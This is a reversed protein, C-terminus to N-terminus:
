NVKRIEYLQNKSIFISNSSNYIEEFKKSMNFQDVMSLDILILSGKNSIIRKHQKILGETEYSPDIYFWANNTSGLNNLNSFIYIWGESGITYYKNVNSVKLYQVIQNKDEINFNIKNTNLYNITKIGPGLTLFLLYIYHLALFYKLKKLFEVKNLYITLFLFYSFTIILLHSSTESKTSIWFITPILILSLCDIYFKKNKLLHSTNTFIIILFFPFLLLSLHIFSERRYFYKLFLNQDNNYLKDIYQSIYRFNFDFNHLYYQYFSYNNLEMVFIFFISFTILSIILFFFKEKNSLLIFINLYIFIYIISDIRTLIACSFFLISIILYLNIKNKKTSAFYLFIFSLSVFFTQFLAISIHSSSNYLLCILISLLLVIEFRNKNFLLIIFFNTMLFLFCIISLTFYSQFIGWGYISGLSSILNIFLPGKHTFFDTYILYNDSLFKASSYYNGYDTGWSRFLHLSWILSVLALLFHIIYIFPRITKFSM